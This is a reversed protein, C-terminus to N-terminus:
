RTTMEQAWPGIVKAQSSINTEKHWYKSIVNLGKRHFRITSFGGKLWRRNPKGGWNKVRINILLAANAEIQYDVLPEWGIV